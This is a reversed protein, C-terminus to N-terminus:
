FKVLELLLIITYVYITNFLISDVRDMFGGHGPIINSFDKIKSARKISSAFLDGIQSFASGFFTFIIIFLINKTEYPNFKNFILMFVISFIVGGIAGEVTKKPSLRPILKTKGLLSGVLYAFTDTSISIIFISFLFYLDTYRLKYLISIPITVYCFAIITIFTDSVSFKGLVDFVGSILILSLIIITTYYRKYLLPLFMHCETAIILLIISFKQNVNEFARIFEILCFITILNTILFLLVGGYYLSTILIFLLVASSIIRKKM